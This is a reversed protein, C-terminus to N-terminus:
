VGGRELFRVRMTEDDALFATGLEVRVAHSDTSRVPVFETAYFQVSTIRHAKRIAAHLQAYSAASVSVCGRPNKEVPLGNFTPSEPRCKVWQVSPIDGFGADQYIVLVLYQCISLKM